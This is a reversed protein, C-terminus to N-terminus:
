WINRNPDRREQDGVRHTGSGEANIVGRGARVVLHNDAVFQKITDFAKADVEKLAARVVLSSVGDAVIARMYSSYVVRGGASGGRALRGYLQEAWDAPQFVKGEMTIGQVVFEALDSLM